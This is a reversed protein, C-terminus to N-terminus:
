VDNTFDPLFLITFGNGLLYLSNETIGLETAIAQDAVSEVSCIEVFHNGLGVTGLSQDFERWRDHHELGYRKLWEAASGEWPDDLGACDRRSSRLNTRLDCDNRRCSM